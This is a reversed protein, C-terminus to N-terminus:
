RELFPNKFIRIGPWAAFSSPTPKPTPSPRRVENYIKVAKQCRGKSMEYDIIHNWSVTCPTRKSAMRVTELAKEDDNNRLLSITNEALKLPDQLWVLEKDLRSQKRLEFAKESRANIKQSGRPVLSRGATVEGKNYSAPPPPPPPPPEAFPEAM